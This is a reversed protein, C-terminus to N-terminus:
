MVGRYIDLYLGASRLLAAELAEKDQYQVTVDGVAASRVGSRRHADYLQEAMACLAFATSDEGPSVVRFVRRFCELHEQARALAYAFAKEPIRSGLYRDTYFGYDVM